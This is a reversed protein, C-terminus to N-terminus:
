EFDLLMLINQDNINIFLLIIFAINGCFIILGVIDSKM